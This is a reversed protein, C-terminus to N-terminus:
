LALGRRAKRHEQLEVLSYARGDLKIDVLHGGQRVKIFRQATLGGDKFRVYFIM